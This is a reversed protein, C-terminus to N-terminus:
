RVEQGTVPEAAPTGVVLESKVIDIGPELKVLREILHVDAQSKVVGRLTATRGDVTVDVSKLRAPMPLKSLHTNVRTAKATNSVGVYEFGIRLQARVQRSNRGTQQGGTMGRGGMMGGLGGMGMGGMGMGGMGMGGLGGMGMGGLGGMGMGGLGGMGMGGLGGMGTGGMGGMGTGGMGGTSQGSAMGSFNNTAAGGFGGFINTATPTGLGSTGSFSGFQTGSTTGASMGQQGTSGTAGFGGSTGGTGFGSTQANAVVPAFTAAILFSFRLFKM